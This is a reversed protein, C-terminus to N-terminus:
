TAEEILELEDERCAVWVIGGDVDLRVTLVWGPAEIMRTGDVSPRDALLKAMVVEGESGTPTRVRDGVTIM